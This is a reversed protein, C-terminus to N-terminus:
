TVNQITKSEIQIDYKENTECQLRNYHTYRKWLFPMFFLRLQAIYM